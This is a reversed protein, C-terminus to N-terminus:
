RWIRRKDIDCVTQPSVGYARAVISRPRPDARIADVDDQTLKFPRANWFQESRTAWRVNGPEYGLNNDIRDLSHGPSPRPGIEALFVAFDDFAPSFTIGRGGYRVYSRNNPNRCRNRAGEWARYEPTKHDPKACGHKLKFPM